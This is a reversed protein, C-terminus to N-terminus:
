KSCYTAFVTLINAQLTAVFYWILDSPRFGCSYFFNFSMIFLSSECSMADEYHKVLILHISRGAVM